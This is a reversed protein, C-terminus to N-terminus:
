IKWLDARFQVTNAELRVKAEELAHNAARLRKLEAEANM